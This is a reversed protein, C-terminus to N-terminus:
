DKNSFHGRPDRKSVHNLKLGLISSYDYGNHLIPHFQDWDHISSAYIGDCLMIVDHYPFAKRTNSFLM